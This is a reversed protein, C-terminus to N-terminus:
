EKSLEELARQLQDDNEDTPDNAYKESLHVEIDPAIGKTENVWNGKPTLWKKTTIKYKDGSTLTSLQQVTGKGYTKEGISKAGLNEKLSAILVESASASYSNSLLVIPYDKTEDGTSRVKKTSGNQELQYAIYSSDMFLGIMKSVTTLHGGTNNRVDIILSDIKERELDKLCDKFQKYTNNAFISVYIYGIKNGNKEFIKSEVSPIVVGSKKVNIDMEKGNRSIKLSFETKDSKLVLQSFDSTSLDKGDMGDVSLIIDETKLGAKDAASNEFVSAIIINNTTPDKYISIGIGSYSGELNLNLNSYEDDEMYVSYDDGLENLVGKLAASLLKEEDLEGYYNEKINQYESLFTKMEDSIQLSDYELTKPSNKMRTFSIGAFFSFICTIVVLIVVEQVKFDKNRNNLIQELEQKEKENM